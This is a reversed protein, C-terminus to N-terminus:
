YLEDNEKVEVIRDIANLKGFHAFFNKIALEKTKAQITRVFRTTGGYTPFTHAAIIFKKM